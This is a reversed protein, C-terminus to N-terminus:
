NQNKSPFFSRIDELLPKHETAIHSSFGNPGHAFLVIFIYTFAAILLLRLLFFVLTM